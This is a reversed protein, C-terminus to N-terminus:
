DQKSGPNTDPDNCLGHSLWIWILLKPDPGDRRSLMVDIACSSPWTLGSMVMWDSRVLLVTANSTCLLQAMIM